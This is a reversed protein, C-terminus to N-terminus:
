DTILPANLYYFRNDVLVENSLLIRGTHTEQLKPTGRFHIGLDDVLHQVLQNATTGPDIEFGYDGIDTHLSIM